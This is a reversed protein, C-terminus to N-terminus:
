LEDRIVKSAWEKACKYCLMDFGGIKNNYCGNRRSTEKKCGDCIYQKAM